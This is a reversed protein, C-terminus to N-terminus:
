ELELPEGSVELAPATEAEAEQAKADAAPASTATKQQHKKVQADAFGGMKERLLRNREAVTRGEGGTMEGMEADMGDEAATNPDIGM